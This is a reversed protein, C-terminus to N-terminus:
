STRVKDDTAGKDVIFGERVRSESARAMDSNDSNKHPATYNASKTIEMVSFKLFTKPPKQKEKTGTSM